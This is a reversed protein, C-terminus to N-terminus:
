PPRPPLTDGGNQEGDLVPVDEEISYFTVSSIEATPTIPLSAPARRVVESPQALVSMDAADATRVVKTTEM